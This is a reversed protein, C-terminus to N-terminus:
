TGSYKLRVPEAYWGDAADFLVCNSIGVVDM